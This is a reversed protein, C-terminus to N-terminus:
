CYQGLAQSINLGTQRDTQQRHKAPRSANDQWLQSERDGNRLSLPSGNEAGLSPARGETAPTPAPSWANM